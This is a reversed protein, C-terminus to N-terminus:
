GTGVSPRRGIGHAALAGAANDARGRAMAEAIHEADLQERLARDFVAVYLAYNATANFRGRVATGILEAAADFRGACMQAYALVLVCDADAQYGERDALALTHSLMTALDRGDIADCM